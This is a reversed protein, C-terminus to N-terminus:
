CARGELANASDFDIRVGAPVNTLGRLQDAQAARASGRHSRTANARLVRFLEEPHLRRAQRENATLWEWAAIVEVAAYDATVGVRLGSGMAVVQVECRTTITEFMAIWLADRAHGRRDLSDL